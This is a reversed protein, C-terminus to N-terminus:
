RGARSRADWCGPFAGACATATRTITSSWCAAPRWTAPSCATILDFTREGLVDAKTLDAEILEAGPAVQAAVKMMSASVDVGTASAVRPLFHELIRGTGCAFDLHKVTGPALRDRLMRDLARQELRWVM